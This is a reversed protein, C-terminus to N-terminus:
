ISIWKREDGSSFILEVEFKVEKQHYFLVYFRHPTILFFIFIVCFKSPTVTLLLTNKKGPKLINILFNPYHQICNKSYNLFYTDFESSRM